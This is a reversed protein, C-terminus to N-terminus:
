VKKLGSILRRVSETILIGHSKGTTDAAATTAAQVDNTTFEGEIIYEAPPLHYTSGDNATVTRSFGVRGMAEHLTEYDQWVGDHLEVRVTFSAM